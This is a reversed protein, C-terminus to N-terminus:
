SPIFAQALSRMSAAFAQIAAIQPATMHPVLDGREINYIGGEETLVQVEYQVGDEGELSDTIVFAIDGLHHAVPMIYPEFAM